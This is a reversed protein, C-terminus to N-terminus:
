SAVELWETTVRRTAFRREAFSLPVDNRVESGAADDVVLRVRGGPSESPYSRLAAQLDEERLGDSL